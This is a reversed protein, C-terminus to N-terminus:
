FTQSQYTCKYGNNPFLLISPGIAPLTTLTGGFIISCTAKAKVLDFLTMVGTCTFSSQNFSLVGGQQQCLPAAFQAVLPPPQATVASAPAAVALSAAVGAVLLGIKRM